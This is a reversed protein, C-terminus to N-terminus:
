SVNLKRRKITLNTKNISKKASIEDRKRVAIDTGEYAPFTVPSVDFLRVKKLTRVDM